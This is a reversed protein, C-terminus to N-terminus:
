PHSGSAATLRQFYDLVRRREDPSLRQLSEWSPMRIDGTGNRIRPDLPPPIAPPADKATTAQRQKDVDDQNGQLSRGADLMRKFLAQQRQVVDPNLSGQELARSLATAERAMASAGPMQGGARMRELQQALARQQMALQMLQQASFGGGQMMGASQQALQGQKGAMGQMQQMAEPLGSGSQSGNVKDKSQMLAFAAVALADVADNAHDTAVRVNPNVSSVADAADQMARRAEALAVGAQPSVLANMAGIAVVQQLLKGAGEAVIGQETRTAPLLAGDEFGQAMALQRQALRSTEELARTLADMVQARMEAQMNQRNDDIKKSLPKLDEEAQKGQSQADAAKGTESSQAAHQMQDSAAHAQQAAEKLGARTDAAPTQAAAKDLRAGLSDARRAIEREAKAAAGSDHQALKPTLDHQETALQGADRGLNALETELAARKFLERAQDLASKMQAQQEALNQLADRTQDADLRKLADKLATLNDRLDSSLAQDLLQNIENLERTIASDAAGGRQAADRLDRLSQQLRTADDIVKQQSQAVVDAKRAADSTLPAKAGNDTSSGNTSGSTTRPRERALDEEARQVQGAQATLSDFATTTANTQRTQMARLEAATPIRILFERSRGVQHTPSNDAAYATYRLTDGGVLGLAGLDITTTILARDGGGPPLPLPSRRVPSSAGHRTEIGAAVIGHDDRIGVVLALSMSMTAITDVGPVPIEVHPASDAVVRIPLAPVDGALNRGNAAVVDLRWTKSQVPRLEGHFSNAAVTLAIEGGGDILRARRLPATARGSMRLLTGQPIILTDGTSPLVEDDLGLYAPYHATVVFSGLFAALSIGVHVDASRHGDGEARAVLDAVLPDTVVTAHGDRDLAVRTSRWEEGPSRTLLDAHDAGAATLDLVAREGRAVTQQRATLRIPTVLARWAAVPHWLRAPAGTAPRAAALVLLLILLVGAARRGHGRQVILMPEVATRGRRRVEDAQADAAAAHLAPSTGPAAPELLTTLAGRRWSGGAEMAHGIHLATTRQMARRAILVGAVTASLAAVWAVIVWVMAATANLRYIWAAIAFALIAAAVGALLRVGGRTAGLPRAIDDLATRVPEPRSM